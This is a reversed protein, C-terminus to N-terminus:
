IAALERHMPETKLPFYVAKPCDLLRWAAISDLGGSVLLISVDARGGEGDVARRVRGGGPHDPRVDVVGAHARFRAEGAPAPRSVAVSRDARPVGRDGPRAPVRRRGPLAGVM